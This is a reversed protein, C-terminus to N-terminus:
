GHWDGVFCRNDARDLTSANHTMARGGKLMGIECFEPSRLDFQM